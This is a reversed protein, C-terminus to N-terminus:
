VGGRLDERVEGLVEWDGELFDMGIHSGGNQQTLEVNQICQILM